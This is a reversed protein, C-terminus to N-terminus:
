SEQEGWEEVMMRKRSEVFDAIAGACLYFYVFVAVKEAMDEELISLLYPCFLLHILATFYHIRPSPRLMFTITAYSIIWVLYMRDSVPLLKWVFVLNTLSFIVYVLAIEIIRGYTLQQKKIEAKIRFIV